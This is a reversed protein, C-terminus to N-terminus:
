SFISRCFYEVNEGKPINPNNPFCKSACEDFAEKAKPIQNCHCSVLMGAFDLNNKTSTRAAEICTEEFKLLKACDTMLNCACKAFTFCVLLSTALLFSRM